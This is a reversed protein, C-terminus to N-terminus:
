KDVPTNAGPPQHPRAPVPPQSQQQAGLGQEPMADDPDQADFIHEFLWQRLTRGRYAIVGPLVPSPISIINNLPNYDMVMLASVILIFLGIILTPTIMEHLFVVSWLIGFGTSIFNVSLAAVPAINRMLRNYIWYALGSTMVGMMLLAGWVLLSFQAKPADIVAGPLLIPLAAIHMGVTMALPEMRSLGKKLLPTVVGAFFAGGLCTMGGLILASTIAVPGFQMVMATGVAGLVIGFWRLTNMQEIKMFSSALAGFFVSSVSLLAGYSAPLHLASWSYLIHPGAVGLIGLVLCEKANNWPLATRTVSTILLLTASALVMRMFTSMNPGLAKATIQTFLFTAGWLSALCCLIFFHKARM